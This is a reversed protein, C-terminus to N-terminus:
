ATKETTHNSKCELLDTLGFRSLVDAVRIATGSNSAEEMAQMLAVTVLGEEVDPKPDTGAELCRAFYEIYNQYEGAHPSHGEFRFFHNEQEVFTEVVTQGGMRWAYRLDFYDGQSAGDSCRLVCSM